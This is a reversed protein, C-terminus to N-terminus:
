CQMSCQVEKKRSSRSKAQTFSRARLRVPRDNRYQGPAFCLAKRIPIGRRNSRERRARGIEIKLNLCLFQMVLATAIEKALSNAIGKKEM